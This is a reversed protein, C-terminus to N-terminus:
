LELVPAGIARGARVVDERCTFLLVQNRAGVEQMLELTVRLRGDDYNAFPDDLLMPAPEGTASLADVLALRLALYIQDVTGKSLSKEPQVHADPAHPVALSVRLDTDVRVDSYAGHTIRTIYESARSALLPAVRAHKDRAIEEILAMAYACADLEAEMVGIMRSAYAHEEEIEHLPRGSSQREAIQIQVQHTQDRLSRAEVVLRELMGQLEERSHEAPQPEPARDLWALLSNLDEGRTLDDLSRQVADRREKLARYKRAEEAQTSWAEFSSLGAHALLRALEQERKELDFEDAKVQRELAASQERLVEIRAQREKQESLGSRIRQLTAGAEEGAPLTGGGNREMLGRIQEEVTHLALEASHREDNLHGLEARYRGSQTHSDAINRKAERYEQYRAIAAGAASRVDTESELVVGLKDFTDQFRIVLNPIRQEAEDTRRLQEQLLEERAALDACAAKYEDYRAELERVTQCQTAAMLQGIVSDSDAPEESPPPPAMDSSLEAIEACLQALRKRDVLLRGLFYLAALAVVAAAIGIAQNVLYFAAGALAGSGVGCLTALIIQEPLGSRIEIELNRKSQLLHGRNQLQDKSVRRSLEYERALEPFNGHAEFIGVNESLALKREAVDKQVKALSQREEDRARIAVDFSSALQTIWEVPDAAIRSFDPLRALSAQSEQLRKETGELTQELELMRDNCRQIIASLDAFRREVEAPLESLAQLGAAALGRNEQEIRQRTQALEARSRELQDLGASVRMHAQQVQPELDLPFERGGGVVFSDRTIEDLQLSFDRVKKARVYREYQDAAALEQRIRVEEMECHSAQEMLSQLINAQEASERRLALVTAREEEVRLLRVRLSPLPKTKASPQGITEIRDRLLQMAADSSHQEEGTDTLSQLKERIKNLSDRDGLDELSFHSITAASLFVEKSLGLHVAAFNVEGNPLREYDGTVEANTNGDVLVLAEDDHDFSRRVEFRRGDSLEYALAGAYRAGEDWPRRLASNEDFLRQTISRKQGYLMDAIFSRLTSKGKENPGVIIQLGPELSVERNQFRGYGTIHARLIRM